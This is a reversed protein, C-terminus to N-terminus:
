ATPSATRSTAPKSQRRRPWGSPARACSTIQRWCSSNAGCRRSTCGTGTSRRRAPSCATTTTPPLAPDGDAGPPRRDLLGPLLLVPAGPRLLRRDAGQGGPDNRPHRPLRQRPDADVGPQRRRRTRLQRERRRSRHRHRSRRLGGPRRGASPGSQRWLLRRRRYRPLPRELRRPSPRGLDHHPRHSAPPRRDSDSPLLGPWLRGRDRGDGIRRHRRHRRARERRRRAGHRGLKRLHTGTQRPRLPAASDM